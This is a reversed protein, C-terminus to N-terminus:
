DLHIMSFISLMQIFARFEFNWSPAPTEGKRKIAILKECGSDDAEINQWTSDVILTFFSINFNPCKLNQKKNTTAKDKVWYDIERTFTRCIGEWNDGGRGGGGRVKTIIAKEFGLLRPTV